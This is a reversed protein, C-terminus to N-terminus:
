RKYFRHYVPLPPVTYLSVQAPLTLVLEQFCHGFNNTEEDWVTFGEEGCLVTENIYSM